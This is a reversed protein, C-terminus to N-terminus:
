CVRGKLPVLGFAEWFERTDYCRGLAEMSRPLARVGEERMLEFVWGARQQESTVVGPGKEKEKDGGGGGDAWGVLLAWWDYVFGDTVLWRQGRGSVEWMKDDDEWGCGGDVVAVVVRAVDDGHILHLSRKERVAEKTPAVRGAWNRPTRGGGWLGALNLVCGGLSRLEDEALARPNTTAYPSHRTIWCSNQQQQQQWIGSSGLQIFRIDSNKKKEGAANNNGSRHTATYTEILLKSPGTGTLPFTVLVYRARPLAAIASLTEHEPASPDFKFSLTPVDAVPHGSTTTAAFPVNRSQLLPILFTATWGAGLILLTLEEM